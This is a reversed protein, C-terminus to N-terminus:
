AHGDAYWYVGRSARPAIPYGSADRSLKFWKAHGDAFAFTSGDLHRDSIWRASTRTEAFAYRTSGGSDGMMITQSVNEISAMSLASYLELLSQNVGYSVQASVSSDGDWTVTDSPCNFVQVSKVYPYIRFAWCNWAYPVTHTGHNPPLAKEGDNYMILPYKEDYDQVYQMMGLGLQKMNSMCSARRANERARAFVPFLISALISIIAIVVLLEILTFGNARSNKM